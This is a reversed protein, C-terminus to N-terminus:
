GPRHKQWLHRREATEGEANIMTGGNIVALDPDWVDVLCPIIRRISRWM